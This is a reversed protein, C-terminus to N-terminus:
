YFRFIRMLSPPLDKTVDFISINWLFIPVIRNRYIKEVRRYKRRDRAVKLRNKAMFLPKGMYNDIQLANTDWIVDISARIVIFVGMRMESENENEVRLKGIIGNTPTM